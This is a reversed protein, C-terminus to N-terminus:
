FAHHLINSYDNDLLSDYLLKEYDFIPKETRAKTPLGIIHNFCCDGNTRIDEQRHEDVNWIWFPKNQLREFLRSQQQTVEISVKKKLDKFTM